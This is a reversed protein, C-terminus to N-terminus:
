QAYLTNVCHSQMPYSRSAGLGKTWIVCTSLVTMNSKASALVVAKRVGCGFHDAFRAARWSAYWKRRREGKTGNRRKRKAGDIM